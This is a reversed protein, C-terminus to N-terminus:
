QIQEIVSEAMKILEDTKPGTLWFFTEESEWLVNSHYDDGTSDMVQVTVGHLATMYTTYNENDILIDAGLERLIQQFIIEDDTENDYRIITGMTTQSISTESFGEPLYAPRLVGDAETGAEEGLVIKTHTGTIDMYTNFVKNRIAEVSMIGMFGALIVLVVVGAIKGPAFLFSRNKQSQKRILRNMKKEFELPFVHKETPLADIEAVREELIEGCAVELMADFVSDNLKKNINAM